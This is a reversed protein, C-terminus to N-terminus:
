RRVYDAFELLEASVNDLYEWQYGYCHGSNGKLNKIINSAGNAKNLSKAAENIGEFINVIKGELMQVIPVKDKEMSKYPRMNDEDGLNCWQFGMHSKKRKCCCASIMEASGGISEAAEKRSSFTNIYNGDLDFQMVPLSGAESLKKRTEESPKLHVGYMPNKEGAFRGKLKKSIKEKTEESLHKGYLPNADGKLGPHGKLSESIKKRTEKSHHKGWMSSKEGCYQRLKEKTEESLHRGYNPNNEGTYKGKKAESMRRLAEESYVNTKGKNWATQGMHSKSLKDRTEETYTKGDGCTKLLNYGNEDTSSHFFDIWYNERSEIDEYSIGEELVEYEFNEWGYKLIARWFATCM